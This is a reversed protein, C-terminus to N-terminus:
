GQRQLYPRVHAMYDAKGIAVGLHRLIGYATVLHFYFNPMLWEDVYDICSLQLSHGHQLAIHKDRALVGADSVTSASLADLTQAIAGHADVLRFGTPDITPETRDACFLAFQRPQECSYAVQFSLPLMDDHLRASLLAEPDHGQQRWQEAAKGLLADLTQLRTRFTRLTRALADHM